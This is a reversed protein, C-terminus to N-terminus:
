ECVEKTRTHPRYATVQRTKEVEETKIVDKCVQKTPTSKSWKIQCRSFTQLSDVYPYSIVGTDMPRVTVGVTKVFVENNNEDLIYGKAEWYGSTDDINRIQYNCTYQTKACEERICEQKWEVCNGWFNKEVCVDKYEACKQQLCETGTPLWDDNHNISVEKCETDTYPVTETYYETKLYEEQTEYSVQKCTPKAPATATVDGTLKSGSTCAIVFLSLGLVLLILLYGKMNFVENVIKIKM